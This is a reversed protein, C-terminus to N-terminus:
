KHYKEGSNIKCARYVQELLIVRMLQHPFTFSSFSLRMDAKKRVEDTFGCSGGVVFAIDSKGELCLGSIKEALEESSMSRGSVDLAITYSPKLADLKACIRASEEAADDSRSEALEIVAPRCFRGLRKVYEAAADQWYKEKLKGVCLITVNM